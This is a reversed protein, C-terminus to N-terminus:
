QSKALEKENIELSRKWWKIEEIYKIRKSEEIKESKVAYDMLENLINEDLNFFVNTQHGKMDKHM